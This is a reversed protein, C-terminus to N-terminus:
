RNSYNEPGVWSLRRLDATQTAINRPESNARDQRVTGYSSCWQVASTWFNMLFISFNSTKKFM